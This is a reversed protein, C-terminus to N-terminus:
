VSLRWFIFLGILVAVTVRYRVIFAGVNDWFRDYPHM